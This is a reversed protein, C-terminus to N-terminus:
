SLLRYLLRAHCIEVTPALMTSLIFVRRYVCKKFWSMTAKCHQMLEQQVVLHILRM